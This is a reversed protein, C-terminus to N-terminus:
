ANWPQGRQESILEHQYDIFAREACPLTGSLLAVEDTDPLSPWRDPSVTPETFGGSSADHPLSPWADSTARQVTKRERSRSTNTRSLQLNQSQRNPQQELARGPLARPQQHQVPESDRVVHSSSPTHIPVVTDRAETPTVEAESSPMTDERITSPVKECSQTPLVLSSASRTAPSSDPDFQGDSQVDTTDSPLSADEEQPAADQPTGGQKSSQRVATVSQRGLAIAQDAWAPRAPSRRQQGRGSQLKQGSPQDLQRGLTRWHMEIKSMVSALEEQLVIKREARREHLKRIRSTALNRTAIATAKSWRAPRSFIQRVVPDDAVEADASDEHVVHAPRLLGSICALLLRALWLRLSLAM